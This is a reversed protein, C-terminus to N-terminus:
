SDFTTSHSAIHLIYVARAATYTIDQLTNARAKTLETRLSPSAAATSVGTEHLVVVKLSVNRRSQMSILYMVSIILDTRKKLLQIGDEVFRCIQAFLPWHIDNGSSFSRHDITFRRYKMQTKM